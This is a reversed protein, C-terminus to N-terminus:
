MALKEPALNRVSCLKPGLNWRDPNQHVDWAFSCQKEPDPEYGELESNHADCTFLSKGPSISDPQGERHALVIMAATSPMLPEDVRFAMLLKHAPIATDRTLLDETADQTRIWHEQPDLPTSTYVYEIRIWAPTEFSVAPDRCELSSAELNHFYQLNKLRVRLTGPTESLSQLNDSAGEERILWTLIM